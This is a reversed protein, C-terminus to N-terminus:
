KCSVEACDVVTPRTAVYGIAVGAAVALVGAGVYAWTSSYWPTPRREVVRTSPLTGVQDPAVTLRVVVRSAKQFRVTIKDEFPTYGKASVRLTHEGLPLKTIPGALPTVGATKGDLEVTAGLLDTLVVVSGYLQEPALLRYAAVRIAEILEDPSGRLPDTAIRRIQTGKAVDVAKINMVYNDGMAAVSGTVMVDVGLRKGIASLCKDDGGCGALERQGAVAKDVDRRTPLPATALRDLEMRFLAELRGVLEADIGLADIRWVALRQTLAQEPLVEDSPAPPSLAPQPPTPQAASRRAPTIAVLAVMVAVVLSLLRASPSRVSM